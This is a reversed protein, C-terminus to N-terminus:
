TIKAEDTTMRLKQSAAQRPEKFDAPHIKKYKVEILPLPYEIQKERGRYIEMRDRYEIIKVEGLDKGPVWFYNANLAAYGYQDVNRNHSLHPERVFVPISKLIKKETEFWINPIIKEKTQPKQAMTETSWRLAQVNLDEWSIFERGPLFNTEVTWFSREEGAKRNCHGKEHAFWSFGFDNAMTIMEPVFVANQGTGRLVALNTNDIVCIPDVYKYFMFAEYFFTKLEFRGFHPYFKLYKQKM